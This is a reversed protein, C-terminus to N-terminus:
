DQRQQVVARQTVKLSDNVKDPGHSISSACFKTDSLHLPTPQIGARSVRFPRGRALEKVKILSLENM